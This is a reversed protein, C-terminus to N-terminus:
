SAAGLSARGDGEVASVGSTVGTSGCPRCGWLSAGGISIPPTKSRSPEWKGPGTCKGQTGFRQKDGTHGAVRDFLYAYNHPDTEGKPYLDGLIALVEKQFAVDHDAHQVLLWAAKDAEKGFKPITFWGHAKILEKLRATNARDIEDMRAAAKDRAEPTTASTLAQRVTQDIREMYRLEQVPDIGAPAQVAVLIMLM